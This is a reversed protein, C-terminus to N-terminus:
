EVTHIAVCHVCQSIVTAQGSHRYVGLVCQSWKVTHIAVCHVCQLIVPNDVHLIQECRSCVTFVLSIVTFRETNAWVLFVGLDGLSCVTVMECM